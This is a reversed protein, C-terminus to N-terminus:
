ELYRKFFDLKRRKSIPIATGNNMLICSNKEKKVHVIKYLNVAFSTHVRFIIEAKDLEKCLIGLNKSCTFMRGSSTHITSRMGKSEVHVIESLPIKHIVRSDSIVIFKPKKM